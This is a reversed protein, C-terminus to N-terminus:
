PSSFIKIEDNVQLKNNRFDGFKNVLFALVVNCFDPLASLATFALKCIQPMEKYLNEVIWNLIGFFAEFSPSTKSFM